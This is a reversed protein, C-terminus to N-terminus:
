QHPSLGAFLSEFLRSGKFRGQCSHIGGILAEQNYLGRLFLLKERYPQLSELVKGLEM